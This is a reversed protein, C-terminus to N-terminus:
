FPVRNTRRCTRILADQKIRCQKRETHEIHADVFFLNDVDYEDDGHKWLMQLDWGVNMGCLEDDITREM